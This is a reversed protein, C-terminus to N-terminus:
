RRANLYRRVASLLGDSPRPMPVPMNPVVIVTVIGLAEFSDLDPYFNARAAVRALEVGPTSRALAEYDGLTIARLPAKRQSVARGIASGLSEADAGAKAPLASKISGLGSIQSLMRLDPEPTGLAAATKRY